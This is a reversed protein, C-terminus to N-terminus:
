RAPVNIGSGIRVQGVIRVASNVLLLLVTSMVTSLVLIGGVAITLTFVLNTAWGVLKNDYLRTGGVVRDSVQDFAQENRQIGRQLEEKCRTVESLDFGTTNFTGPYTQITCLNRRIVGPIPNQTDGLAVYPYTLSGRPMGITAINPLYRINNNTPNVDTSSLLSKHLAELQAELIDIEAMARDYEKYFRELLALNDKMERNARVIEEDKPMATEWRAAVTNLMVAAGAGFGIASILLALFISAFLGIATPFARETIKFLYLAGALPAFFAFVYAFVVTSYIILAHAGILLLVAAMTYTYASRVQKAAAETVEIIGQRIACLVDMKSLKNALRLALRKFAKGEKGLGEKNGRDERPKAKGGDCVFDTFVGGFVTETTYRIASLSALYFTIRAFTERMSSIATTIPGPGLTNDGILWSTYFSSPPKNGTNQASQCGGYIACYIGHYTKWVVSDRPGGRGYLADYSGLLTMAIVLRILLGSVASFRGTIILQLVVYAIGIAILGASIFYVVTPVGAATTGRHLYEWFQAVNPVLLKLLNTADM